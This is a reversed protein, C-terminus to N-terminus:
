HPPPIEWLVKGGCKVILKVVIVGGEKEGLKWAKQDASTSAAEAVGVEKM